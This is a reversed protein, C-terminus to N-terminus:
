REYQLALHIIRGTLMAVPAFVCLTTQHDAV